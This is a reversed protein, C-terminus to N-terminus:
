ILSDFDNEDSFFASKKEKIVKEKRESFKMKFSYADFESVYLCMNWLSYSENMGLKNRNSFVCDNLRSGINFAGTQNTLM